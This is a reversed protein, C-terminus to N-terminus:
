ILVFNTKIKLEICDIEKPLLTVHVCVYLTCVFM